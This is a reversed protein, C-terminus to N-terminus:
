KGRLGYCEILSTALRAHFANFTESYGQSSEYGEDYAALRPDFATNCIFDCTECYGLAIDGVPYALAQRRDPLLMMSNVPANRLEYFVPLGRAGCNPCCRPSAPLAHDLDCESVTMWGRRM